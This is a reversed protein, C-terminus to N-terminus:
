MTNQRKRRHGQGFQALESIAQFIEESQVLECAFNDKVTLVSSQTGARTLDSYYKKGEKGPKRPEKAWIEWRQINEGLKTLNQM